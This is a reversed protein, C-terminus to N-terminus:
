LIYVLAKAANIGVVKSHVETAMVFAAWLERDTTHLSFGDNSYQAEGACQLLGDYKPTAETIPYTKEDTIYSQMGSSIPRELGISGSRYEARIKDSPATNLYFRYLLGIALNTRYEPSPDPLMANPQLEEKLSKVANQLNADSYLDDIGTLIAETQTAHVFQPHIGGFCIRCSKIMSPKVMDFEFLFAANVMAHANQARPMIKYSRFTFQAPPLKPLIVNLIVHQSMNLTLYESPSCKITMGDTSVITLKADIAELLLFIDSPFENHAHKISLNGAITGAKSHDIILITTIM